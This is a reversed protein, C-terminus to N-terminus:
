NQLYHQRAKEITQCLTPLYRILRETPRQTKDTNVKYIQQQKVAQILERKQWKELWLNQKLENGGLLIVQPNKKIIEELNVNGALPLMESFVNYGGCLSLAQSIFQQSNITILPKDWIKYFFSISESNKYLEKVSNLTDILEYARQNAIDQTQIIKGISKIEQPIDFLSKPNSYFIKFGLIHSFKELKAIDQTRNGSTWIIVLDPKLSIIKEINIANYGGVIPLSKVEKPYDSYAVVGVLKDLGGASAVLETAGPSLSIIRQISNNNAWAQNLYFFLVIFLAFLLIKNSTYAM